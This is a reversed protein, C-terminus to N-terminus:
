RFSYFLFHLGDMGHHARGEKRCCLRQRMFKIIDKLMMIGLQLIVRRKSDIQVMKHQLKSSNNYYSYSNAAAM